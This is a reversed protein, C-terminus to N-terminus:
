KRAGAIPITPFIAQCRDTGSTPTSPLNAQYNIATTAQAPIFNNDFQLVQPVSGEPNGTTANVPIGMLYYGASNVLYGTNNMQFDGARTYDTVGSFIPQTTPSDRDAQAVVFWGDGNIAM